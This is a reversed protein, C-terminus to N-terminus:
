LLKKRLALGFVSISFNITASLYIVGQLGYYKFLFFGALFCGAAAGLTNFYYLKGVAHAVLRGRDILAVSLLPLTMGMLMTPILLLAFVKFVTIMFDASSHMSMILQYSFVGFLGIFFEAMFFFVICYHRRADALLGGLGGGIGLGLMFVTVIITVSEIDIGFVAFMLRQWVIQYLIASFGSLSFIAILILVLGGGNVKTATMKVSGRMMAILELVVMM